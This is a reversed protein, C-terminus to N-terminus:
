AAKEIYEAPVVVERQAGLIDIMIRAEGESSVAVVKSEFGEFPGAVVRVRDNPNYEGWTRQFRYFSPATLLDKELMRGVTKTDLQLPRLHPFPEDKTAPPRYGVVSKVVAFRLASWWPIPGAGSWGILVYGPMAVFRRETKSKDYHHRKRWRTETPVCVLLDQARLIRVTTQEKQPATRLAYWRLEGREGDM